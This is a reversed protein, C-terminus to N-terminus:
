GRRDGIKLFQMLAQRQEEGMARYARLLEAEDAKAPLARREIPGEGYLIWAADANLADALRVLTFANPKRSNDTVLNSIAAQTVGCKEAVESQLYGRHEILWRIRQGISMESFAPAKSM